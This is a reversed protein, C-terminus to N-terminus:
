VGRELEEVKGDLKAEVMGEVGREAEDKKEFGKPELERVEIALESNPCTGWVGITKM